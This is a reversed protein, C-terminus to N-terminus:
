VSIRMLESVARSIREADPRVGFHARIERHLVEGVASASGGSELTRVIAPILCDYEDRPPNM